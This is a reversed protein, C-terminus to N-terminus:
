VQWDSVEPVRAVIPTSLLVDAMALRKIKTGQVQGDKIL